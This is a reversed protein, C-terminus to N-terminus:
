WPFAAVAFASELRVLAADDAADDPASSMCCVGVRLASKRFTASDVLVCRLTDHAHAEDIIAQLVADSAGSQAVDVVQIRSCQRLLQLFAAAREESQLSCVAALVVVANAQLTAGAPDVRPEDAFLSFVVRQNAGVPLAPMGCWASRARDLSHWVCAALADVDVRNSLVFFGTPAGDGQLVNAGTPTRRMMWTTENAASFTGDLSALLEAYEARLEGSGRKTLQFRSVGPMGFWVLLRGTAFVRRAAHMLTRALRGGHEVATAFFPVFRWQMPRRRGRLMPAVHVHALLTLIHVNPLRSGHARLVESDACVASIKRELLARRQMLARCVQEHETTGRLGRVRVVVVSGQEELEVRVGDRQLVRQLAPEDSLEAATFLLRGLVAAKTPHSEARPAVPVSPHLLALEQFSLGFLVSTTESTMSLPLQM